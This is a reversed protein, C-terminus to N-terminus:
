LDAELGSNIVIKWKKNEPAVFRVYAGSKPDNTRRTAYIAIVCCNISPLVKESFSKVNGCILVIIGVISAVAVRRKPFPEREGPRV